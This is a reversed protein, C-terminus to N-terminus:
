LSQARTEHRTPLRVRLKATAVTRIKREHLKKLIAMALAAGEIPDTGAGLEDFLALSKFSVNEIINVINKM